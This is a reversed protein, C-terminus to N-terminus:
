LYEEKQYKLQVSHAPQKQHYKKQVWEQILIKLQELSKAHLSLKEGIGEAIFLSNPRERILIKLHNSVPYNAWHYIFLWHYFAGAVVLVHFIEHPGLVNDILVPFRFSECVAGVTYCMGGWFLFRTNEQGYLSKIKLYSLVGLWGLCLYFSLGM